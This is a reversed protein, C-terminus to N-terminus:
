LAGRMEKSARKMAAEGDEVRVKWSPAFCWEWRWVDFRTASWTLVAVAKHVGRELARELLCRSLFQGMSQLSVKSLM